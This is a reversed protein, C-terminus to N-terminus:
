KLGNIVGKGGRSTKRYDKVATRKGYGNETITLIAQTDLIELSVVKDDKAMRIGTVGYSARGMSRISDSDFRIA